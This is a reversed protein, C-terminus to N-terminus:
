FDSRWVQIYPRCMSKPKVKANKASGDTKEKTKDKPAGKTNSRTKGGTSKLKSEPEANTAFGRQVPWKLPPNPSITCPLLRRASLLTGSRLLTRRLVSSLMITSCCKSNNPYPQTLTLQSATVQLVPGHSVTAKVPLNSLILHEELKWPGSESGNM